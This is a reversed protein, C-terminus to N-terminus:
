EYIVGQGLILYKKYKNMLEKGIKRLKAKSRVDKIHLNLKTTIDKLKFRKRRMKKLSM